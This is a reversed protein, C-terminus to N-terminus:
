CANRGRRRAYALAGLTLLASGGSAAIGPEPVVTITNTVDIDLNFLSHSGGARIEISTGELQPEIMVFYGSGYSGPWEGLPEGATNDPDTLVVTFCDTSERHQFLEQQTFGVGDITLVLTDTLDVFEEILPGVEECAEGLSTTFLLTLLAVLVHQGAPIEFTRELPSSAGEGAVGNIFFVPLVQRQHAYDGTEDTVADDGPTGDNAPFDAWWNFWDQTWEGITKGEVTSGPALVTQAQAEPPLALMTLALAVLMLDRRNWSGPHAQHM